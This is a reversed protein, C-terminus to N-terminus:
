HSRMKTREEVVANLVDHPTNHAKMFKLLATTDKPFCMGGFSINGDSGPVNTHMPNIWGNKLMLDRVTNYNINLKQTLLYMETFFQIKTAYFSNVFLKMSESESPACLSITATPYYQKYFDILPTINHTTGLVIHKQNHFDDVATKASLFEPNHVLILNTYKQSFKETTQPEYTSKIVIIGKYNNHSLQKLIDNHPSTDFCNKTPDFPTPLSLFVIDTQYINDFNAYETKYKDYLFLDKDIIFNHQQLSKMIATGVVGIGCIGIKM